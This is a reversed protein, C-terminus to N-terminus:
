NKENILVLNKPNNWFYPFGYKRYLKGQGKNWNVGLSGPNGELAKTVKGKLETNVYTVEKGYVEKFNVTPVTTLNYELPSMYNSDWKPLNAVCYWNGKYLEARVVMMKKIGIDMILFEDNENFYDNSHYSLLNKM